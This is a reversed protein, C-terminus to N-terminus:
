EENYKMKDRTFKLEDLIAKFKQPYDNENVM